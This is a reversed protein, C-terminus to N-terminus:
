SKQLQIIIFKMYLNKEADKPMQNKLIFIALEKKLNLLSNLLLADLVMLNGKKAQVLDMSWQAQCFFDLEKGHGSPYGDYQRYICTIPNKKNEVVEIFRTLSRTGM